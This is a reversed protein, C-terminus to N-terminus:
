LSGLLSAIVALVIFAFFGAAVVALLLFIPLAPSKLAPKARAKRRILTTQYYLGKRGANLRTGRRGTSVSLGKVGASVGLGSKSVSLRLPGM